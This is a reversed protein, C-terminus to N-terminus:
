IASRRCRLGYLIAALLGLLLFVNTTPSTQEGQILACSAKKEDSAAQFPVSGPDKSLVSIFSADAGGSIFTGLGLFGDFPPILPNSSTISLPSCKSAGGADQRLIVLVCGETCGFGIPQFALIPLGESDFAPEFNLNWYPLSPLMANVLYASYTGALQHNYRITFPLDGNIAEVTGGEILDLLADRDLLCSDVRVIQFSSEGVVIRSNEGSLSDSPGFTPAVAASVSQVNLFCFAIIEVVHVLARFGRRGFQHTGVIEITVRKKNLRAVRM